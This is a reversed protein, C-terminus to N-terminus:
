PQFQVRNGRHWWECFGAVSSTTLYTSLHTYRVALKLSYRIKNLYILRPLYPDLNRTLM